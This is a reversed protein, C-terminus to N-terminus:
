RGRKLRYTKYNIPHSPNPYCWGDSYVEVGGPWAADIAAKQTTDLLGYPKEPIEVPTTSEILVNHGDISTYVGPRLDGDCMPFTVKRSTEQPEISSQRLDDIRHTDGEWASYCVQTKADPIDVIYAEPNDLLHQKEDPTLEGFPVPTPKIRYYMSPADFCVLTTVADSWDPTSSLEIKEGRAAADRLQQQEIPTLKGFPVPTARSVVTFNLYLKLLTPVSDGLPTILNRACESVTYPRGTTYGAQVLQVVDGANLNMENLKYAM